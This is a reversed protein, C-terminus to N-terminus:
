TVSCCTNPKRTAPPGSTSDFRKATWNEITTLLQDIEVTQCKYHAAPITVYAVMTIGSQLVLLAAM